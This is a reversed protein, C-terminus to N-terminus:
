KPLAELEDILREIYRISKNWFNPDEFHIGIKAAITKPSDSSGAALFAKFKPIFDPGSDLYHQYLAIVLLNGFNYAYVYFPVKVIHPITMWEWRYESPYRVSDGFMAHLEQWYLDGIDDVSLHRNEMAAHVAMEFRSFSNQRYSTAFIDELKSCLIARKEHPDTVISLLYDTVIMESFVSATEALPLIPHYSMLSNQECFRDHIAHGLEHALTAIDRSQGLFNVLVYPRVDPTSSSCFAGGRKNPTVTAHIRNSSFMDSAFDFFQSDFKAFSDLVIKKSEQWSFKQNSQPMPAYIDALSQNPLRLLDSKYRYYRAVLPYSDTTVRHLADVASDDLDNEVNMVQIATQFGRLQRDTEFSKVVQTFIQTFILKNEYYRSLFLKMAQQRVEPDPDHRKARLEDGTLVRTNGDQTFEFTFASTLEGYLKKWAVPGTLEMLTLIKEEPESLNFCATKEIMELIYRYPHIAPDQTLAKMRSPPIKALELRFFVLINQIKSQETDIHAVLSKVIENSTDVAYMLHIYQSAKYLPTLISEYWRCIEALQPASQDVLTGQVTERFETARRTTETLVNQLSPDEPHSFLDSLDWIVQSDDTTM